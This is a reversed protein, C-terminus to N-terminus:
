VGFEIKDGPMLTVMAKKYGPVVGESRGLRVKRPKTNVIRVRSVRVGYKGEVAKKVEPKNASQRVKFVYTNLANGVTSKETIHPSILM